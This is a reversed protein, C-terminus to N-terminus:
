KPSLINQSPILRIERNNEHQPSMDHAVIVIRRRNTDPTGSWSALYAPLGFQSSYLAFVLTNTGHNTDFSYIKAFFLFNHYLLFITLVGQIM